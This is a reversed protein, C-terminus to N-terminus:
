LEIDPSPKNDLPRAEKVTIRVTHTEVKGSASKVEYSVEDTGKYTPNAKYFVGQATAELSPCRTIRGAKLKGSRVNLEGHKPPTLVRVTPLPGSTCDKQVNGYVGLRNSKGAVVEASRYASNTQSLAATGSLALICALASLAAAPRRFRHM